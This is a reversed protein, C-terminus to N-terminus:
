LLMSSTRNRNIPASSFLLATGRSMSAEIPTEVATAFGHTEFTLLIDGLPLLTDNLPRTIWIAATDNKTRLPTPEPKESEAVLNDTAGVLLQQEVSDRQEGRFVSAMRETGEAGEERDDHSRGNILEASSTFVDKGITPFPPEVQGRVGKGLLM